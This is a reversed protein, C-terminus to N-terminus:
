WLGDDCKSGEVVYEDPVAIKLVAFWNDALYWGISDQNQLM